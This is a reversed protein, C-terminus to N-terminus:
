YINKLCRNNGSCYPNSSVILGCYNVPNNSYDVPTYLGSEVAEHLVMKFANWFEFDHGYAICGLHTLEHLMVFKLISMEHIQDENDGKKRLCIGFEKGKDAVFSTEEGPNPDNEFVNDPNYNKLVRIFFNRQEVSGKNNIIFKTKVFKLYQIIFNHLQALKDAAMNQDTFGSAVKYPRQDYDSIMSSSTFYESVENNDSVMYLVLIIVIIYCVTPRKM